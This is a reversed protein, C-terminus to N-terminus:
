PRHALVAARLEPHMVWVAADGTKLITAMVGIAPEADPRPPRTPLTLDMAGALQRGIVGMQLTAAGDSHYGADFALQHTTLGTEGALAHARLLKWHGDHPKVVALARAYEAESPVDFGLAADHRRHAREDASRNDLEAKLRELAEEVNAGQAEAVVGHAGGTVFARAVAKGQLLGAKLTYAGHQVEVPKQM